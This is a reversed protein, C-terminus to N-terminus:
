QRLFERDWQVVTYFMKAQWLRETSRNNSGQHKRRLSYARELGSQAVLQLARDVQREARRKRGDAERNRAHDAVAEEVADGQLEPERGGLRDQQHERQEDRLHRKRARRGVNQQPRGDQATQM